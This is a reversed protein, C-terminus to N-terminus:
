QIDEDAVGVSTMRGHTKVRAMERVSQQLAEHTSLEQLSTPPKLAYGTSIRTNALGVPNLGQVVAL